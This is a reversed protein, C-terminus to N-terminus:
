FVYSIGVPFTLAEYDVTADEVGRDGDGSFEHREFEATIGTFFHLYRNLRGKLNFGLSSQIGWKHSGSSDKSEEFYLPILASIYPEFVWSKSFSKQYRFSGQPGIQVYEPVLSTNTTFTDTNQRSLGLGADISLSQYNRGYSLSFHQRSVAVNKSGVDDPEKFTAESIQTQFRIFNESIKRVGSVAISTGGAPETDYQQGSGSQKFSTQDYRLAVSLEYLSLENETHIEPASLKQLNVPNTLEPHLVPPTAVTAQVISSTFALCGYFIKKM